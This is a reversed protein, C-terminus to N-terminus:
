PLERLVVIEAGQWAVIALVFVYLLYCAIAVSKKTSRWFAIFPLIYYPFFTVWGYLPANRSILWTVWYFEGWLVIAPIFFLTEEASFFEGGDMLVFKLTMAINYVVPVGLVPLLFALIKHRQIWCRNAESCDFDM